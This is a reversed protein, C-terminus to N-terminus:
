WTNCVFTKGTTACFVSMRGKPVIMDPGPRYYMQGAAVRVGNTATATIGWALFMDTDSTNQFEFGNRPSRQDSYVDQATGGAAISGALNITPLRQSDNAM